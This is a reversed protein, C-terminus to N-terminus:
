NTIVELDPYQAIIAEMVQDGYIKGYTRSGKSDDRWGGYVAEWRVPRVDAADTPNILSGTIRIANSPIMPNTRSLYNYLM